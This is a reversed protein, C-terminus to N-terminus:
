IERIWDSISNVHDFQLQDLVNWLEKRNIPSFQSKVVWSYVSCACIAITLVGSLSASVSFHFPHAIHAQKHFFVSGNIRHPISFPPVNDLFLEQFSTLSDSFEILDLLYSLCLLMEIIYVWLNVIFHIKLFFFFFFFTFNLVVSCCWSLVVNFFYVFLADKTKTWFISFLHQFKNATELHGLSIQYAIYFTVYIYM